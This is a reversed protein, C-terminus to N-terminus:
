PTVGSDILRIAADYAQVAPRLNGSTLGAEIESLLTDNAGRRRLLTIRMRLAGPLTDSLYAHAREFSPQMANCGTKMWSSSAIAAQSCASEFQLFTEMRDYKAALFPYKLSPSTATEAWLDKIRTNALDLFQRSADLMRANALTDRTSRDVELEILADTRARMGDVLRAVSEAVTARRSECYGLMNGVSNLSSTVLAPIRIGHSSAFSMYPQMQRDFNGQVAVLQARFAIAHDLFANPISAEQREFEAFATKVTGLAQLDAQSASESFAKLRASVDAETARYAKYETVISKYTPQLAVLRGKTQEVITKMEGIKIRVDALANVLPGKQADVELVKKRIAESAEQIANTKQEVMRQQNEIFANKWKELGAVSNEYLTLDANTTRLWDLVRQAKAFWARISDPDVYPADGESAVCGVWVGINANQSGVLKKAEDYVRQIDDTAECYSPVSNAGACVQITAVLAAKSTAPASKESHHEASNCGAFLATLLLCGALCNRKMM